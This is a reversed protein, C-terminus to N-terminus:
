APTKERGKSSPKTVEVNQSDSSLRKGHTGTHMSDALFEVIKAATERCDDSKEIHEPFKEYEEGCACCSPM